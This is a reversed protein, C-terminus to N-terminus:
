LFEIIGSPYSTIKLIERLNEVKLHFLNYDSCILFCRFLLTDILSKKYTQNLYSEYHTFVGSFSPKRYVSAIFVRPYLMALNRIGSSSGRVWLSSVILPEKLESTVDFLESYIAKRPTSDKNVLGM